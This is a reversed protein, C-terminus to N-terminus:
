RDFSREKEMRKLTDIPDEGPLIDYICGITGGKWSGKRNGVEKEFRVEIYRDVRRFFPLGLLGRRRWEREEVTIITPIIEGDYKDTFDYYFRKKKDDWYEDYFPRRMGDIWLPSDEKRRLKDYDHVWTGDKLQMSHRYHKLTWPMEFSKYQFNSSSRNSGWQIVLADPLSPFRSDLRHFYFGYTEGDCENSRGTNNPLSIFVQGWGVYISLLSLTILFLPSFNLILGSIFFLFFLITGLNTILQPRPDFYSPVSVYFGADCFKPYFSVWKKHNETEFLTFKTQIKM